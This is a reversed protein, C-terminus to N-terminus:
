VPPPELYGIEKINRYKGAFDLGYGIVFKDPVEFGLYAVPVKVKARAPKYLLSAVSVSAPKRTSLNKILYDLTLGTDVIDEVILVHQGELPHKVDMTIQVVGSTEVRDGYSRLGIFEVNLPLDIERILDAAFIFSGKLVVLVTLPKGDFERTIEAGLHRVREAIKETSFLLHYTDNLQSM